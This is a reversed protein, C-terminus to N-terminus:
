QVRKPFVEVLESHHKVHIYQNYYYLQYMLRLNKKLKLNLQNYLDDMMLQNKGINLLFLEVVNVVFEVDKQIKEIRM